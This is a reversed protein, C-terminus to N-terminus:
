TEVFDLKPALYGKSLALTTVRHIREVYIRLSEADDPHQLQVVEASVLSDQEQTIFWRFTDKSVNIEVAGQSLGLAM